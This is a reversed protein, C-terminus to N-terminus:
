VGGEAKRKIAKLIARRILGSGGRITWWYLKFKKAASNGLALIRTETVLRTKNGVSEVLFNWGAKAWGEEHFALFQEAATIDRCLNGAPKWFRGITGLVIERDHEEGLILFGSGVIQGILPEDTSRPAYRKGEFLLAPVSRFAMLFGVLPVDTPRLSKVSALVEHPPADIMITHIERFQFDPVFRDLLM